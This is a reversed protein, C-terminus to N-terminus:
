SKDPAVCGSRAVRAFDIRKLVDDLAAPSWTKGDSRYFHVSVPLGGADDPKFLYEAATDADVLNSRSPLPYLKGGPRDESEPAVEPPGAAWLEVIGVRGNPTEITYAIRGVSPYGQRATEGARLDFAFGEACVKGAGTWTAPKWAPPPISAGAEGALVSCAVMAALVPISFKM